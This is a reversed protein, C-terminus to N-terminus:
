RMHDTAKSFRKDQISTLHAMQDDEVMDITIANRRLGLRPSGDPPGAPANSSDVNTAQTHTPSHPQTDPHSQQKPLPPLGAPLNSMAHLRSELPKADVVQKISKTHQMKEEFRELTQARDIHNLEAKLWTLQDHERDPAVEPSRSGEPSGMMAYAAEMLMARHQPSQPLSPLGVSANTNSPPENESTASTQQTVDKPTRSRRGFSASRVLKGLRM